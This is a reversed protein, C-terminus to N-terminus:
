LRRLQPAQIAYRPNTPAPAQCASTPPIFTAVQNFLKRRRGALPPGELMREVLLFIYGSSPSFDPESGAGRTMALGRLSPKLPNITTKSPTTENPSALTVLSVPKTLPIIFLLYSATNLAVGQAFSYLSNQAPMSPIAAVDYILM